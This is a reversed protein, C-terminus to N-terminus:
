ALLRIDALTVAGERVIIPQAQTCDIVTSAVGSKGADDADAVMLGVREVFAPDLEVSKCSAAQGSFNASTTALPMGVADILACATKSDPMRLGITGAESCFAPPVENSAKVVLTLPGPWFARALRYALEPIECGYRDLDEVGGVLWAIPKGSEREKLDYLLQPGEAAGVAVGVGYVTDTPFIAADGRLLASAAQEITSSRVVM